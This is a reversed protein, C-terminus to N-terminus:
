RDCKHCFFITESYKKFLSVGGKEECLVCVQTRNASHISSKIFHKAPLLGFLIVLVTIFLSNKERGKGAIDTYLLSPTLYITQGPCVGSHSMIHLHEHSM